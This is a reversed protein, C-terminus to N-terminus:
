GMMLVERTIRRPREGKAGVWDPDNFEAWFEDGRRALTIAAGPVDTVMVDDFDARMSEPGAVQTMTRHFSGYWSDYESPHCAKCTASSVDGDGDVQRPRNEVAAERWPRDATVVVAIGLGASVLLM